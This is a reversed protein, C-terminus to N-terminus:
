ASDNAEDYSIPRNLVADGIENRAQEKIKNLRIEIEERFKEVFSEAAIHGGWM